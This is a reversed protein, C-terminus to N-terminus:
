WRMELIIKVEGAADFLLEGAKGQKRLIPWPGEIRKLALTQDVLWGEAGKDAIDGAAARFKLGPKGGHIVLTRLMAKGDAAPELRDEIRAGKLQYRFTPTGRSDLRYGEFRYGISRGTSKPWPTNEEKLIWLPVGPDLRMVSDGLPPTEPVERKDWKNEADIFKGKWMLAWRVQEGDFAAHLQQPYGVAIGAVGAGEIFSRFLIPEKDPKLEFSGKPEMGEPLRTQDLENLYVWICDIQGKAPDSKPAKVSTNSPKGGPFFNPMRTGPRFKAPDLLYAQFWEVRLRLPATALDIAPVGLSKHGNLNHCVICGYGTVGVLQRGLPNRGVQEVPPWPAPLDAKEFLEAFQKAHDIGFDPMRTAMYPRVAGQGAIVKVIAEPKLKAGVGTLRPPVEGEDGLDIQGVSKFHERKASEVGGLNDRQHCAFCNLSAMKLKAQEGATLKTTDIKLAARLDTRQEETLHYNPAAAPPADALCGKTADTIPQNPHAYDKSDKNISHCAACKLSGFLVKGDEMESGLVLENPDAASDRLFAAIDEAEKEVLPVHPMRSSPRSSMPDSLFYALSSGSYKASLDGLPVDTPLGVQKPDAPHCAVCGVTAYLVRGAERNGAVSMLHVPTKDTKPDNKRGLLKFAWLMISQNVLAAQAKKTHASQGHLIDPMTTGPKIEHPAAIFKEKYWYSALSKILNPGRKGPPLNGAHCNACGLESLLVLGAQPDGAQKLRQYGPVIPAASLAAPAIFILWLCWIRAPNNM